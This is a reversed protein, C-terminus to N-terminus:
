REVKINGVDVRLEKNLDVLAPFFSPANYLFLRHKAIEYSPYNAVSFLWKNGRNKHRTTWRYFAALRPLWTSVNNNPQVADQARM